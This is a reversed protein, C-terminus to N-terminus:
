AFSKPPRRLRFPVASGPPLPETAAVLSCFSPPTTLSMTTLVFWHCGAGSACCGQGTCDSGDAGPSASPPAASVSQSFKITKTATVKSDTKKVAAHKVVHSQAATAHRAPAHGAHAQASSPAFALLAGVFLAWVIQM